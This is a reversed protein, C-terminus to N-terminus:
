RGGVVVMLCGKLIPLFPRMDLGLKNLDNVIIEITLSLTPISGEYRIYYERLHKILAEKGSPYIIERLLEM